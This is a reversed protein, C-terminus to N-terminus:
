CVKTINSSFPTIDVDVLLTVTEWSVGPVAYLNLTDAMVCSSSRPASTSMEPVVVSAVPPVYM